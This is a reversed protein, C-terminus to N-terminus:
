RSRTAENHVEVHLSRKKAAPRRPAVVRSSNNPRSAVADGVPGIDVNLRGAPPLSSRTKNASIKALQGSRLDRLIPERRCATGIVVSKSSAHKPSLSLSHHAVTQVDDNQIRFNHQRSPFAGLALAQERAYTKKTRLEKRSSDAQLDVAQPIILSSM